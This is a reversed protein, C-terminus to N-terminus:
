GFDESPPLVAVVLLVVLLLVKWYLDDLSILESNSLPKELVRGDLKEVSPGSRLVSRTPLEKKSDDVLTVSLRDM